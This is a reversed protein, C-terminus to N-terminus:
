SCGRYEYYQMWMIARRTWTSGGRHIYDEIEEQIEECTITESTDTNILYIVGAFASGIVVIIAIIAIWFKRDSKNM